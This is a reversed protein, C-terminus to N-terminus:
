QETFLQYENLSRNGPTFDPATLRPPGIRRSETRVLTKKRKLPAESSVTSGASIMILSATSSRTYSRAVCSSTLALSANRVYQLTWSSASISFARRTASSRPTGSSSSAPSVTSSFRTRALSTVSRRTIM